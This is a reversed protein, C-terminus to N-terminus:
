SFTQVAFGSFATEGNTYKAVLDSTGGASYYGGTTLCGGLVGYSGSGLNAGYVYSAIRMWTDGAPYYREVTDRYGGGYRRGSISLGNNTGGENCGSQMNRDESVNTKSTWTSASHSYIKNSYVAASDDAGSSVMGTDSSIPFSSAGYRLTTSDSVTWSNASDTYYYCYRTAGGSRYGNASMGINTTLQFPAIHEVGNSQATKSFWINAADSFKDSNGIHYGNYGAAVLFTDNTLEFGKTHRRAGLDTRSIWSNTSDSHRQTKPSYAGNDGGAAVGLDNTLACAGHYCTDDIMNTRATWVNAHYDRPLNFKLRLKYRPVFAEATAVDDYREVIGTRLAGVNTGSASIGSNSTGLSFHTGDYRLEVFPPKMTWSNESDSYKEANTAYGGGQKYGGCTIGGDTTLNFCDVLRANYGIGTRISWSNGTDTYKEVKASTNTNDDWGMCILGTVETLEMGGVHTTPQTLTGRSTWSNGSHSYRQVTDLRTSNTGGAVIGLNTTLTFAGAGGREQTLSTRSAWSNASDTFAEVLNIYQTANEGGAVVGIDTTLGFGVRVNAIENIDTRATWTNDVDSFRESTALMSGNTGGAFIGENQDLEFGAGSTRPRGVNTRMTWASGYVIPTEVDDTYMNSSSRVLGNHGGAIMGTTINFSFGEINFVIGRLDNISGRQSWANTTENFKYTYAYQQWAPTPDYYRGGCSIGTTSSLGFAGHNIVPRILDGKLTWTNGTDDFKNVESEGYPASTTMQGGTIIGTTSTLEIGAHRCIGNHHATRTTWNNGSWSYRRVNDLLQATTASNNGGVGIGKDTDLGFGTAEFHAIVDATKSTWNNGSDSYAENVTLFNTGNNGGVLLGDNSTLGFSIPYERVNTIATRSTWTNATLSHRSTTTPLGGSRNGAAAIALDDDLGFAGHSHRDQVDDARSTWYGGGTITLEEADQYREAGSPYGPSTGNYGGSILGMHSGFEASGHGARQNISPLTKWVNSSDTHSQVTNSYSSFPASRSGGAKICVDTGLSFGHARESPDVSSVGFYWIDASESYKETVSSKYNPDTGAYLIARDSTLGVGAAEHKFITAQTKSTWSNAANSYRDVWGNGSGNYGCACIGMDSDLELGCCGNRGITLGTRTSWTNKSDDYREVTTARSNNQGGCTIGINETLKFGGFSSRPDTLVARSVWVDASNSYRGVDDTVGGNQGGAIIARDTTLGFGTQGNADAFNTTRQTWVGQPAPIASVTESVYKRTSGTAQSGGGNQGGFLLGNSSNISAGGPQNQTENNSYNPKFSWVGISVNYERSHLENFNASAGTYGGQAIGSVSSTNFGDGMYGGSGPLDTTYTWTNDSASYKEVGTWTYDSGTGNYGGCIVGLDTDLNFAIGNNHTRGMSTKNTWNNGSYSYQETNVLYSANYGSCKLGLNSTQEIAEAESAVNAGTKTTWTNDSDTFASSTLVYNGGGNTGSSMLGINSTLGFAAPKQSGASIDAREIWVNETDQYRHTSTIILGGGADSRGSCSVAWDTGLSFAGHGYPRIPMGARLSWYEKSTSYEEDLNIITNLEQDRVPFTHDENDDDDFTLDFTPFSISQVESDTYRVVYDIYTGNHGGAVIGQDTGSLDFADANKQTIILDTGVSWSNQVDTYRETKYKYYTNDFGGSVVGDHSETSFGGFNGKQESVPSRYVWSNESDSYREVTDLWSSPGYGTVAIGLDESLTIGEPYYRTTNMNTRSTWSNGSESFRETINIGGGSANYGGMLIGLNSTLKFSGADNKSDSVSTRNTWTNVSNNYREINNRRSSGNHGCASIGSDTTQEFGTNNGLPTNLGTRADWYNQSESFRETTTNVPGSWGGAYIGGDSTLSFAAAHNRPPNIPNRLTWYGAMEVADRQNYLASVVLSKIQTTTDTVDGTLIVRQYTDPDYPVAPTQHKYSETSLGGDFSLSVPTDKFLMTNYFDIRNHSTLVKTSSANWAGGNYLRGPANTRYTWENASISFREISSLYTTISQDYGGLAFGTDSSQDAGQGETRTNHLTSKATWANQANSYLENFDTFSGSGNNGGFLSGMDSSFSSCAGAERRNACSTRNSWTNASDSYRECENRVGGNINYGGASICLDNTLEFGNNYGRGVNLNSRSSWTNDTNNFRESTHLGSGAAGGGNSGGFIIGRYTDLQNGGCANRVYALSTRALWTDVSDQYRDCVGVRGSGSNYGGAQLGFDSGLGFAGIWYIVHNPYGRVTWFNGGDIKDLMSVQEVGGIGPSYNDGANALIDAYMGEQDISFDDRRDSDRWALMSNVTANLRAQTLPGYLDTGDKQLYGYLNVDHAKAM